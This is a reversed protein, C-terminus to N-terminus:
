PKQRWRNILKRVGQPRNTMVGDVGRDLVDFLEEETPRAPEDDIASALSGFGSLFVHVVGGANRVRTILSPPSLWSAHSSQLARGNMPGLPFSPILKLFKLGVNGLLSIGTPYKEGSLNGFARLLSESQSVVLVVRDDRAADLIRIFPDLHNSKM